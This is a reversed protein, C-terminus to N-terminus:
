FPLEAVPIEAASNGIILKDIEEQPMKIPVPEFAPESDQESSKDRIAVNSYGRMQKALRNVASTNATIYTAYRLLNRCFAQQSEVPLNLGQCYEQYATYMDEVLVFPAEADNVLRDQTFGAISNSNKLMCLKTQQSTMEHSFKNNVLLRRLGELAWNFLGSVEEVTKLKEDLFPDLKEIKKNFNIIIWRDFYADDDVDKVDPIKNCAFISKAYNIFQFEDGFKKEGSVLGGGTAIKFSGHNNIGQSDLDDYINVYKQYLNGIAFKDGSLKQLSVGSINNIGILNTLAKLNTSKGTNKVGSFIFAKKLFIKRYLCFGYIEQIIDIDKADLTESFFKKHLPCDASPSYTVPLKTFFYYKQDYDIIEMKELDFVGNNLPLLNYNDPIDARIIYTSDKIKSIIEAKVATTAEEELMEEIERRLLYEGEIYIGSNYLFLTSVKNGYITIIRYKEKLEAAIIHKTQKANNKYMAKKVKIKRHEENMKIIFDKTAKTEPLNYKGSCKIYEFIGAPQDISMAYDFCAQGNYWNETAVINKFEALTEEM